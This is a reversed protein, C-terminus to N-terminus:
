SRITMRPPPPQAGEEAPEPTRSLYANLARDLVYPLASRLQEPTKVRPHPSTPLRAEGLRKPMTELLRGWLREANRDTQPDARNWPALTGIWDLELQDFRKLQEALDTIEISWADVLLLGLGREPASSRIIDFDEDFSVINPQYNHWRAVDATHSGVSNRVQHTRWPNWDVASPGYCEPDRGEPLRDIRPAAVVVTLKRDVPGTTHNPAFADEIQDFDSVQAPALTSAEATRIIHKALEQVATIYDQEYLSNKIITYFGEAAYTSGFKEHNVQIQRVREPVKEMDVPTWLAPVIAPPADGARRARDDLMRQAFCAWERGCEVRDFYRPSYLPLFVRCTALAELVEPRWESGVPIVPTDMFGVETALPLTTRERIETSLDEFLQRVLSQEQTHAYALFFYPSGTM